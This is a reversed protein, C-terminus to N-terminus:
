EKRNKGHNTHKTHKSHNTMSSGGLGMLKQVAIQAAKVGYGAMGVVEDPIEVFHGILALNTMKEPIIQPRDSAARPLLTATMRPFLCPITISDRIIEEEEHEQIPFKLHCLIETMIEQGSCNVMPKKIFDGENASYMAYGWLVHVDSPQDRFLPQQPISINLLWSSDKLTVIASDGPKDGTLSAFHEFFRPSRLTVTFVELCSESKRTYFNYANGFKPNKTCLELWLLWNEDQDKNHEMLDLEPPTTNTGATSSSMSSGLSVIVIDNPALDITTKTARKGTTECKIATVRHCEDVTDMIIDSITSHFRFDVGRSVLFRAIPATIAEHRNFPGRDLPRPDSLDEVDHM